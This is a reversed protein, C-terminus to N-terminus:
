IQLILELDTVNEDGMGMEIMDSANGKKCLVDGEGLPLRGNTDKADRRDKPCDLSM